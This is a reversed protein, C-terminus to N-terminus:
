RKRWMHLAWVCAVYILCVLVMYLLFPFIIGLVINVVIVLGHIWIQSRCLLFALVAELVAVLIVTVPSIKLWLIGCLIVVLFVAAAVIPWLWEPAKRNEPWLRGMTRGKETPNKGKRQWEKQRLTKRSDSRRVFERVEPEMDLIEMDEKAQVEVEATGAPNEKTHEKNGEAKNGAKTAAM